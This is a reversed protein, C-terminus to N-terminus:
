RGVAVPSEMRMIERRPLMRKSERNDGKKEESDSERAKENKKRKKGM